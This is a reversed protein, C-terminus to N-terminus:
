QQVHAFIEKAGVRSCITRALIRNTDHKVSALSEPASDHGLSVPLQRPACTKGQRHPESVLADKRCHQEGTTDEAFTAGSLAIIPRVTSSNVRSGAQSAEM